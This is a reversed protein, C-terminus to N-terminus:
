SDRAAAAAVFADPSRERAGGEGLAARLRRIRELSSRTANSRAGTVGAIRAHSEFVLPKAEEFRQLRTWCDGLISRAEAVRWHDAPLSRSLIELAEQALQEGEEPRGTLALTHALRYLNRAVILHEPGLVRRSMALSQLYHEEAASLESTEELGFALYHLSVAIHPHEEGLLRRNMALAEVYLPTAAAAEGRTQLLMALGNLSGAVEHHEEGFLRRNMALVERYAGEEESYRGRQQLLWALGYLTRAIMPHEEGLLRRHIVLSERYMREAEEYQGRPSLLVALQYLSAAIQSHGEEFHERALALSERTVKESAGYEGLSNLMVAQERLMDLVDPHGEGLLRRKMALAGGLLAEAPRNEGRAALGQAVLRQGEAIAPHESGYLRRLMNLAEHLLPEASEYRGTALWLRALEQLSAAVEPHDSARAHRRHELAALLLPEAKDYLALNRYAVGITSMLTARVTPEDGLETEIRKVGADLLRVRAATDVEVARDPDFDQLLEVVFSMTREARDRAVEAESRQQHLRANQIALAAAALTIFLVLLTGAAVAVRHHQVFKGTAYWRQSARVTIPLGRLFRGLDDSLLQASRYRREPEKSLATLVISDLDGRLVRSLKRRDEPIQTKPGTRGLVAVSPKEPRHECIAQELEWTQENRQGYPGRGTLLEYLLVGLAYIDCATTLPEGRVQEPSAYRPTMPRAGLHTSASAVRLRGRDLLKAIGFDVLKPVGDATVLINGPKLDRHVVLNRHAFSVATCVQRFLALRAHPDLNREACYRDIPEGEVYEVVFYPAGSATTGGDLLHAINPHELNALIQREAEFRRVIDPGDLGPRILKVAVQKRFTGDAREALYVVGMGGRGLMRVVRYPGISAGAPLLHQDEEAPLSPPQELFSGNDDNAALLAEVERRLANAGGASGCASDLFRARQDGPLEVAAEFLEKAARWRETTM